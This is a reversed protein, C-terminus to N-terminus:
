TMSATASFDGAADAADDFRDEAWDAAQDAAATAKSQEQRLAARVDTANPCLWVPRLATAIVREAVVEVDDALARLAAARADLASPDPM